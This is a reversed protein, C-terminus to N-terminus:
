LDMSPNGPAQTSYAEQYPDPGPDASIPRTPNSKYSCIQHIIASAMIETLSLYQLLREM